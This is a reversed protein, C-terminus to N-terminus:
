RALFAELAAVSEPESLIPAHGVGPIEAYTCDALAERMRGAIDASLVDSLAGRLLLVPCKIARLAEWQDM